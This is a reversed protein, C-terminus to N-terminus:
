WGTTSYPLIYPYCKMSFVLSVTSNPENIAQQLTTNITRRAVGGLDSVAKCSGTEICKQCKLLM